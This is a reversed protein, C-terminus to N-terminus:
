ACLPLITGFIAKRQAFDCFICFENGVIPEGFRRALFLIIDFRSNSTTKEGKQFAM